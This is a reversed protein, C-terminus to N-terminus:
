EQYLTFAKKQQADGANIVTITAVRPKGSHNAEVIYRIMGKGSGSDGTTVILWGSNRNVIWECGKPVSVAVSGRGGSKSFWKMQPSITIKCPAGKQKVEFTQGVIEVSGTREFATFNAALTVEVVGKNDSFDVVKAKLWDGGDSTQVSLDDDTLACHAAGTASVAVNFSSSGAKFTHKQPSIEFQCLNVNLHITDSASLGASNRATLTIDHEGAPLNTVLLKSGTGLFGSINSFWTLNDDPLWEDQLDYAEAELLIEDGLEYDYGWPLDNIFVSPAKLPVTCDASEGSAANVGDTVTVRIRAHPGGSLEDFNEKWQSAELGSTLELWPSKPDTVDPNYEVRAFLTAGEPATATWQITYDGKLEM